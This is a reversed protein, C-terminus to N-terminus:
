LLDGGHWTQHGYAMYYYLYSLDLIEHQGLTTHIQPLLEENCIGVRGLKTAVPM